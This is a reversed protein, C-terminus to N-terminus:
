EGLLNTTRGQQRRYCCCDIEKSLFRLLSHYSVSIYRRVFIFPFTFTRSPNEFYRVQTSSIGKSSFSLLNDFNGLESFRHPLHPHSSVSKTIQAHCSCFRVLFLTSSCLDKQWCSSLLLPGDDIRRQEFSLVMSAKTSVVIM